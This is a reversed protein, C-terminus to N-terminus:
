DFSCGAQVAIKKLLKNDSPTSTLAQFLIEKLIIDDRTDHEFTFFVDRGILLGADAYDQLRHLLDYNYKELDMRGAHEIIILRGSPLMILFDPHYAIGHIIIKTEYRYPIHLRELLNGVSQESKTRMFIRGTTPYILDEKFTEKQSERNTNWIFQNRTMVIRDIDLNAQEYKRFLIDFESIFSHFLFDDHEHYPDDLYDRILRILLTIYQRRALAYILDKDKSIGRRKGNRRMYFTIYKRNKFIYLSGEPLNELENQLIELEQNLRQQMRNAQTHMLMPTFITTETAM